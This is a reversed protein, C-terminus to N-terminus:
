TQKENARFQGSHFFALRARFNQVSYINTFKFQKIIVYKLIIGLCFDNQQILM